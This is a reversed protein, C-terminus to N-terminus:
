VKGFSITIAGDTTPFAGRHSFLDFMEIERQTFYEIPFHPGAELLAIRAGSGALTALRAAITGGGAGSGVIVIDYEKKM